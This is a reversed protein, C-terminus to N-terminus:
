EGETKSDTPAPAETPAGEPAQEGPAAAPAAGDAPPTTGADPAAVAGPAEFGGEKIKIEISDDSFIPHAFDVEVIALREELTGIAALIHAPQKYVRTEFEMSTKSKFFMKLLLWAALGNAVTVILYYPIKSKTKREVKQEVLEEVHDEGGSNSHISSKKYLIIQSSVKVERGKKTEGSLTAM